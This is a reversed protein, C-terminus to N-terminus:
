PYQITAKEKVKILSATNKYNINILTQNNAGLYINNDFAISNSMNSVLYTKANTSAAKIYIYSYNTSEFIYSLSTVTDILGTNSYIKYYDANPIAEWSIIDAHDSNINHTITPAALKERIDITPTPDFEIQVLVDVRLNISDISPIVTILRDYIKIETDLGKVKKLHNKENILFNVNMISSAKDLVFALRINNPNELNLVINAIDVGNMGKEIIESKLSTEISTNLPYNCLTNLKTLVNEVYTYWTYGKDTSFVIKPSGTYSVNIKNISKIQETDLDITNMIVLENDSKYGEIDLNINSYSIIKFNDLKDIPKFTEGDLTINTFLTTTTLSSKALLDSLDGTINTYCKATSDYTSASLNYYLDNMQILLGM